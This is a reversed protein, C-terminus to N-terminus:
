RRSCGGPRGEAVPIPNASRKQYHVSGGFAGDNVLLDTVWEHDEDEPKLCKDALLHVHALEQALTAAVQPASLVIRVDLALILKGEKKVVFLGAPGSREREFILMHDLLPNEESDFFGLELRAPDVYIYGYLLPFLEEVEQLTARWDCPFYRVTPEIPPRKVPDWGFQEGAM